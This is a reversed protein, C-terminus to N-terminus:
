IASEGAVAGAGTRAALYPALSGRLGEVDLALGAPPRPAGRAAANHRAFQRVYSFYPLYHRLSRMVLATIRSPQGVPGPDPGISLGSMPTLESLVAALSLPAPSTLHYTEGHSRPGLDILDLMETVVIDVPILDLTTGLPVPLRIAGRQISGLQLLVEAVKYFGSASSLRHTVSHAIIISPRFVRYPRGLRQCEARVCQEATWKSEEYPNNFRAPRSTDRELIEGQRDGAVYATSVYNFAAVGPLGAMAAVLSGTGGVNAQWVAPRDAERFSLNAACHVLEAPGRMWRAADAVWGPEDLGGPLVTVRELLRGVDARLGQDVVAQALAARLRTVAQWAEGRVLCAIRATPNRVLWQTAVQSGLFGSAGTLLLDM